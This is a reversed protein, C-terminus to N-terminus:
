ALAEEPSPEAATFDPAQRVPLTVTFTSGTGLSSRVDIRGGHEAV